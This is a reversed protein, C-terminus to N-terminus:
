PECPLSRYQPFDGTSSRVASRTDTLDEILKTESTSYASELIGDVVARQQHSTQDQASVCPDTVIEGNTPRMFKSRDAGSAIALAQIAIDEVEAETQARILAMPYDDIADM